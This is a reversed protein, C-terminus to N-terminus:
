NPRPPSGGFIRVALRTALYVTGVLLLVGLVLEATVALARLMPSDIQAVTLTAQVLALVAVLTMAVALLAILAAALLKRM